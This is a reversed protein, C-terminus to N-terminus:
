QLLALSIIRDYDNVLSQMFKIQEQEYEIQEIVNFWYNDYYDWKYIKDVAHEASNSGWPIEMEKESFLEEVFKAALESKCYVIDWADVDLTAIRKGDANLVVLDKTGLIEILHAMCDQRNDFTKGDFTTWTNTYLNKM